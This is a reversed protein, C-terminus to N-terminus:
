SPLGYEIANLVSRVHDSGDQTKALELPTINGLVIQRTSLWRRAADDGGLVHSAIEFLAASRLVAESEKDKLNTKRQVSRKPRSKVSKM